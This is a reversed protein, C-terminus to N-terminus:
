TLQWLYKTSKLDPLIKFVLYIHNIYDLLNINTCTFRPSPTRCFANVGVHLLLPAATTSRNWAEGKLRFVRTRNGSSDGVYSEVTWQIFVHWMTNMVTWRIPAYFTAATYRLKRRARTFSGPHSHHFEMNSNQTAHIQTNCLIDIWVKTINHFATLTRELLCQINM